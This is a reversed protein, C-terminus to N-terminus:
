KFKLALEDLNMLSIESYSLYQKISKYDHFPIIFIDKNRKMQDENWNWWEIEEFFNIVEPCYRFGRQITKGSDADIRWISFPPCDEEICCKPAIFCGNAIKIGSKIKVDNGIFCDHGIQIDLNNVNNIEINKGIASYIGIEVNINNENGILKFCHLYNKPDM